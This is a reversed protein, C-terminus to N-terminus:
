LAAGRVQAAARSACAARIGARAGDMTDVQGVKMAVRLQHTRGSKPALVYVRQRPHRESGLPWSDFRTRAFSATASSSGRGARGATPQARTLRWAGRRSREMGGQVIGQKKRPPRAALALYLKDARRAAFEAAALACAERTKALLLVGSTVRDLRHVPLLTALGPHQLRALEVAGPELLRVGGEGAGEGEGGEGAGEGEGRARAYVSAFAVGAPKHVALLADSEYLTALTPTRTRRASPHPSPESLSAAPARARVRRPAARPPPRREVARSLSCSRLRWGRRQAATLARGAM